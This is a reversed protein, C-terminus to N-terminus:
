SSARAWPEFEALMRIRTELLCELQPVQVLPLRKSRDRKSRLTPWTWMLPYFAYPIGPVRTDDTQRTRQLASVLPTPDGILPLALDDFAVFVPPIRILYRPIPSPVGRLNVKAPQDDFAVLLSTNSADDDGASPLQWYEQWLWPEGDATGFRPSTRALLHVFVTELEDLTFTTLMGDTLLVTADRSNGLVMANTGRTAITFLRPTSPVGAIRCADTLAQWVDPRVDGPLPLARAAAILLDEDLEWLKPRGFTLMGAVSLVAVCASVMLLVTCGVAFRPDWDASFVLAGASLVTLAGFVIAYV